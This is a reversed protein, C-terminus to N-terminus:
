LVERHKSEFEAIHRVAIKDKTSLDKFPKEKEEHSIQNLWEIPIDKKEM